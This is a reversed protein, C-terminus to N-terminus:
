RVRNFNSLSKAISTPFNRMLEFVRLAISNIDPLNYTLATADAFIEGIRRNAANLKFYYNMEHNFILAPETAQAQRLEKEIAKKFDTNKSLNYQITNHIFDIDM